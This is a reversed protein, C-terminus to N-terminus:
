PKRLLSEASALGAHLRRELESVFALWDGGYTLVLDRLVFYDLGRENTELGSLASQALGVRAAADRQTVGAALRLERLLQAALAQEPRHVSSPKHKPLPKSM